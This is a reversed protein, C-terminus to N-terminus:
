SSLGAIAHTGMAAATSAAVSDTTASSTRKPLLRMANLAVFVSSLSMGLAALWPPIFGFAALPLAGFNYAASWFLNQRVIRRMRRTLAIAEPLVALNETTLIMDASAHALATGRGMAISVDAAGLVPANGLPLGSARMLGDFYGSM